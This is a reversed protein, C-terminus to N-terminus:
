KILEESLMWLNGVIAAAKRDVIIINKGKRFWRLARTRAVKFSDTASIVREFRYKGTVLLRGEAIMYRGSVGAAEALIAADKETWETM